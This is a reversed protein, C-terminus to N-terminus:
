KLCYHSDSVETLFDDFSYTLFIKKTTDDDYNSPTSDFCELACNQFIQTTTIYGFRNVRSFKINIKPIQLKFWRDALIEYVPNDEDEVLEVYIKGEAFDVDFVKVMYCLDIKDFPLSVIFRNNRAISGSYNVYDKLTNEDDNVQEEKIDDMEKHCDEIEKECQARHNEFWNNDVSEKAQMEKLEKIKDEAKKMKRRNEVAELEDPRLCGDMHKEIEAKVEDIEAIKDLEKQDTLLSQAKSFDPKEVKELDPLEKDYKEFIKNVMDNLSKFMDNESYWGYKDKMERLREKVDRLVATPTRQDKIMELFMDDIPVDYKKFSAKNTTKNEKIEIKKKMNILKIEKGNETKMETKADEPEAMVLKGNKNLIGLGFRLLTQNEELDENDDYILNFSMGDLFSMYWKKKWVLNNGNAMHLVGRDFDIGIIPTRVADTIYDFMKKDESILFVDFNCCMDLCNSIYEAMMITTGAGRCKRILFYNVGSNYEVGNLQDIADIQEDTLKVREQISM